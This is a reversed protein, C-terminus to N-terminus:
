NGLGLGDANEDEGDSPETSVIEIPESTGISEIDIPESTDITEVDIYESSDSARSVSDAGPSDDKDQDSAGEDPVDRGVQGHAGEDPEDSEARDSGGEEPTNRAVRGNVTADPALRPVLYNAGEGPDGGEAGADPMLEDGEAGANAGEGPDGGEAGANAGEGPEDYVADDLDDETLTGPDPSQDEKSKEETKKDEPLAPCSASTGPVPADSVATTSTIGSSSTVAIDAVEDALYSTETIPDSNEDDADYKQEKKKEVQPDSKRKLAGRECVIFQEAESTSDDNEDVIIREVIVRSPGPIAGDDIVRTTSPDPVRGDDIVRPISPLPSKPRPQRPDAACTESTVAATTTTSTQVVAATDRTPRDWVPPPPPMPPPPAAASTEGTATAASSTDGTATAASSTEGTATAASSTEGTATAASSTEGTATAASSTEGTATAASSTEGTATAASSTEGTATPSTQLLESMDLYGTPHFSTDSNYGSCPIPVNHRVDLERDSRFSDSDPSEDKDM